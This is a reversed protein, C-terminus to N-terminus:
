PAPTRPSPSPPQLPEARLALGPPLPGAEIMAAILAADEKTAVDMLDVRGGEVRQDVIGATVVRDDILLALLTGEPGAALRGTLDAFREADGPAFELSIVPDRTATRTTWTRVSKVKQLRMGPSQSLFIPRDAVKREPLKMMDYEPIPLVAQFFGDPPQAGDTARRAERLEVLNPSLLAALFHSPDDRSRVILHYTGGEGSALSAKGVRFHHPFLRVRRALIDSLSDFSESSLAGDVHLVYRWTKLFSPALFGFILGLLLALAAPLLVRRAFRNAGPSIM